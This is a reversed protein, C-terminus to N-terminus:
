FRGPNLDCNRRQRTVTKPLRNVGMTGRKVLCCFQYLLGRLPQPPIVAPRTSLLPLKGGPKHNVDGALQSGVVPILGPVSREIISYPSGKLMALNYAVDLQLKTTSCLPISLDSQQCVSNARYPVSHGSPRKDPPM